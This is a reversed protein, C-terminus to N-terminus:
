GRPQSRFLRSGPVQGLIIGIWTAIVLVLQWGPFQLDALYVVLLFLGGLSIGGIVGALRIRGDTRGGSSSQERNGM